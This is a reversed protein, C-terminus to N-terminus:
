PSFSVAYNFPAVFNRIKLHSVHWSKLRPLGMLLKIFDWIVSSSFHKVWFSLFLVSVASYIVVGDYVICKWPPLPSSHFVYGKNTNDAEEQM